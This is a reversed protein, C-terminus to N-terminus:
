RTVCDWLAVEGGGGAVRSKYCRQRHPATHGGLGNRDEFSLWDKGAGEDYHMLLQFGRFCALGPMVFRLLSFATSYM